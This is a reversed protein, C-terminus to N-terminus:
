IGEKAIEDALAMYDMAVTSDPAATLLDLERSKTEKVIVASRIFTNFVKTDLANAAQMAVKMMDKSNNQRPDFKTFLIGLIKPDVNCYQRAQQITNGLQAIGSIADSDADTPILIYDAALLAGAIEVAPSERIDDTEPKFSLGLLAIVGGDPFRRMIKEAALKKQRQNALVVSEVVTMPAGFKKGTDALAKTDKPFCSGGYGPGPHLFKPSIRGDKGMAAAVELANAGVQECLNAIENIFTIKTALFANSAYKIMEATEPTTVVVPKNSRSFVKYLERLLKEARESAVGLVIRDPNDFDGVARGERLFEPNSAVDFPINKGMAKLREAIRQRLARATGVPVTSKDVVLKYSQMYDAIEDAASYVYCLDASGDAAEPTGVAIFILEGHEVASKVDCTFRLRGSSLGDSLQVEAGPEYIPCIGKQLKEIKEPIVDLCVVENGWKAFGLGAILGVYGTGIVTIKM